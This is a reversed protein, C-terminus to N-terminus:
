LAAIAADVATKIAGFEQILKSIEDKSLDNFAEGDALANIDGVLTANTSALSGLSSSVQELQAKCGAVAERQNRISTAITDLGSKIVSITM